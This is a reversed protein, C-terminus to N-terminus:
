GSRPSRHITSPLNCSICPRAAMNAAAASEVPSSAPSLTLFILRLFPASFGFQSGFLSRDANPRTPLSHLPSLVPHSPSIIYQHPNPTVCPARVVTKRSYRSRRTVGSGGTRGFEEGSKARPTTSLRFLFRPHHRFSSRCTPTCDPLFSLLHPARTVIASPTTPTTSGM